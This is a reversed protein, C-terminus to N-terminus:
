PVPATGKAGKVYVDFWALWRAWQDLDTQYM